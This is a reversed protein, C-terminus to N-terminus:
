RRKLRLGRVEAEGGIGSTDSRREAVLDASARSARSMAAFKVLSGSSSRRDGILSAHCPRPRLNVVARAVLEIRSTDAIPLRM